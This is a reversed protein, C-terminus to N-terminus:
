LRGTLARSHQALEEIVRESEDWGLCADTISQGYTLAAGATLDQRGAILNSELMLGVIPEAGGSIRAAIEKAVQAQRQHMKASNAHSCDVIIRPSLSAQKMLVALADVNERDYNPGQEGGRLIIHCDPNGATAIIASRGEHTVGLFHHPEAAAKMADVAIKVGGDTANKFGIPCSLGSALERHVQSETTRAGISGWSVLDAYYQPSIPDLFETGAALGMDGLDVLLRRAIRLGDNIRFSGDMGPDNILGKWGVTTRPKEFYVRMVLLLEKAFKVSLSKLRVAYDRAAEPDHISCPGVIVLLRPDQRTIIAQIALRAYHVSQAARETIPIEESLKSPSIVERAERIRLDDTKVQM